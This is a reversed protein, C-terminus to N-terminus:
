PSCGETSTVQVRGGALLRLERDVSPDSQGARSCYRITRQMGSILRVRRSLKIADEPIEEANLVTLSAGGQTPPFVRRRTEDEACTGDRNDDVVVEWGAAWAEAGQFSFVCAFGGRIAETRALQIASILNSVDNAARHRRLMQSFDPAAISVVIAVVALTVLLEILTFGHSASRVVVRDAFSLPFAFAQTAKM